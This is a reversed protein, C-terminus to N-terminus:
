QASSDAPGASVQRFTEVCLCGIAVVAIGCLGIVTVTLLFLVDRLWGFMEASLDPTTM